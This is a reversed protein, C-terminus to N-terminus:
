PKYENVKENWYYHYVERVPLEQVPRLLLTMGVGLFLGLLLGAAIGLGAGYLGATFRASKVYEKLSLTIEQDGSRVITEILKEGSLPPPSDFLRLLVTSKAAEKSGSKVAPELTGLAAELASLEPPLNYTIENTQM